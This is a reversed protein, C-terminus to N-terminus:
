SKEVMFGLNPYKAVALELEELLAEPMTNKLVAATKFFETELKHASEELADPSGSVSTNLAYIEGYIKHLSILHKRADAFKEPSENLTDLVESIKTKVTAMKDLDKQNPRPAVNFNAEPKKWELSIADIAGLSLDTGAKIGYLTTIFKKAYEQDAKQSLYVKTMGGALILLMVAVAAYALWKVNTSQKHGEQSTIKQAAPRSDADREAPKSPVRQAAPSSRRARSFSFGASPQKRAVAKSSQVVCYDPCLSGCGVCLNDSGLEEGCNFCYVRGQKKYARLM